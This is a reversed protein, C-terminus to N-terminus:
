VNTLSGISLCIFLTEDIFEREARHFHGYIWKKPKNHKCIDMWMLALNHRELNIDTMLNEDEKKYDELIGSKGIPLCFAPASHTVVIDIPRPDELLNALKEKDYVFIEEPFYDWDVKRITRDVSVAGGVCLIRKGELELITYDPVLTINSWRGNYRGDWYAPNDHNGRIAYVHTKRAKWSINWYDMTKEMTPGDKYMLLGFDGVQLINCNSAIQNILKFEGHIDGLGLTM